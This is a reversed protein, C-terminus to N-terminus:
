GMDDLIQDEESTKPSAAMSIDVIPKGHLLAKLLHAGADFPCFLSSLCSKM